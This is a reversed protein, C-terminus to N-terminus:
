LYRVGTAEFQFLKDGAAKGKEPMVDPNESEGELHEVTKSDVETVQVVGEVQCTQDKGDKAVSFGHDKMLVRMVQDEHAIVMWCGAQQCVDAVRGEVRITGEFSEPDALLAEASVVADDAVTFEAGFHNSAAAAPEEVAPAEPAEAPAEAPTTACALVAFIAFM